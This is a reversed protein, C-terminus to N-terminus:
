VLTITSFDHYVASNNGPFFERYGLSVCTAFKSEKYPEKLGDLMAQNVSGDPKLVNWQLTKEMVQVKKPKGILRKKNTLRFYELTANKMLTFSWDGADSRLGFVCGWPSVSVADLDTKGSLFDQFTSGRHTTYTGEPTKFRDQEGATGPKREAVYESRTVQGVAKGPTANRGVLSQWVAESTGGLTAFRDGLAKSLEGTIGAHYLSVARASGVAFVSCGNIAATFFIGPNPVPDIGGGGAITPSTAVDPIKIKVINRSKWPLWWIPIYGVRDSAKKLERPSKTEFTLAGVQDRVVIKFKIFAIMDIAQDIKVKTFEQFPETDDSKPPVYGRTYKPIVAGDPPNIPTTRLFALKQAFSGTDLTQNADDVQQKSAYGV